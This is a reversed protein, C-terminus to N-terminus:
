WISLSNNSLGWSSGSFLLSPFLEWNMRHPCHQESVLVLYHCWLFLVSWYRKLISIYFDVFCYYISDLLKYFPNIESICPQNLMLFDIMTIHWMLTIFYLVWMAAEVCFFCKVFDLVQRSLFAWCVSCFLVAEFECFSM